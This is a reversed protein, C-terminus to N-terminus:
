RDFTEHTTETNNNAEVSHRLITVFAMGESFSCRWLSSHSEESARTERSVCKLATSPYRATSSSRVQLYASGFSESSKISCTSFSNQGDRCMLQFLLLLVHKLHADNWLISDRVGQFSHARYVM